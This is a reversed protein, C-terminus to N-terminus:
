FIGRNGHQLSFYLFSIYFLFCLLCSGHTVIEICYKVVKGRLFLHTILYFCSRLRVYCASALYIIAYSSCTQRQQWWLLVSYRFIVTSVYQQHNRSHKRVFHWFSHTLLVCVFIYIKTLVVALLTRWLVGKEKAKWNRLCQTLEYMCGETVTPRMRWCVVEWHTGSTSGLAYHLFTDCNLPHLMIKFLM